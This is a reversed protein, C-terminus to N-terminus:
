TNVRNPKFFNEPDFGAFAPSRLANAPQGFNEYRLGLTMSLSPAALWVDQFFYTQRLSNPHFPGPPFDKQAGGFGELFDAFPSYGAAPSDAYSLEGLFRGGPTQTALQRLFEVGYRFTHRGRLSTLTDQFLLNNVQRSRILISSVGPASIAGNGITIYP